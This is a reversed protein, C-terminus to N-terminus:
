YADDNSKWTHSCTTPFHHRCTWMERCCINSKWKRKNKKQRNPRQKWWSKLPRFQQQKQKGVVVSQRQWPLRLLLNPSGQAPHQRRREQRRSPFIQCLQSSTCRAIFATGPAPEKGRTSRRQPAPEQSTRDSDPYVAHTEPQREEVVPNHVGRQKNRGGYKVIKAPPESDLVKSQLSRVPEPQEARKRKPPM